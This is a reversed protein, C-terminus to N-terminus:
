VIRALQEAKAAETGEFKLAVESGGRAVHCRVVRCLIEFAQLPGQLVRIGVKQGETPLSKASMMVGGLLAGSLSVNRMVATGRDQLRGDEPGYLSLELSLITEKREHARRERGGVPRPTRLDPPRDPDKGREIAATMCSGCYTRGAVTVARGEEFDKRSIEAPCFTCRIPGLDNM